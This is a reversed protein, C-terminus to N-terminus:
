VTRTLFDIVKLHFDPIIDILYKSPSISDLSLKIKILHILTQSNNSM